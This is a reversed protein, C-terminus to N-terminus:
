SNINGAPTTYTINTEITLYGSVPVVVVVKTYPTFGNLEGLVIIYQFWVITLM